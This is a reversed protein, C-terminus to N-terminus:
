ARSQREWIFSLDGRKPLGWGHSLHCRGVGGQVGFPFCVEPRPRQQRESPSQMVRGLYDSEGGKLGQGNWWLVAPTPPRLGEKTVLTKILPGPNALPVHTAM